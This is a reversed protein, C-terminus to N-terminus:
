PFLMHRIGLGREGNLGMAVGRNGTPLLIPFKFITGSSGGAGPTVKRWAGTLGSQM